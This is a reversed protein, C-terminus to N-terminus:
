ATFVNGSFATLPATLEEVMERRFRAEVDDRQHQRGEVNYSHVEAECKALTTRQGSLFKPEVALYVKTGNCTWSPYETVCGTHFDYYLYAGANLM